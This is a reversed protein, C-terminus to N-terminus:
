KGHNVAASGYRAIVFEELSSYESMIQHRSSISHVLKAIRQQTEACPDVLTVKVANPNRSLGRRLLWEAQLDAPAFSFGVIVLERAEALTEEAKMWLPQFLEYDKHMTPPVLFQQRWEDELFLTADGWACSNSVSFLSVVLPHLTGQGRISRFWNLSGHLKLYTVESSVASSHALTSPCTTHRQDLHWIGDFKMPTYGIWENWKLQTNDVLAKDMILDYNFNIITDSSDLDSAITAHFQCADQYHRPVGGTGYLVDRIYDHLHDKHQDKEFVEDHYPQEADYREEDVRVMQEEIDVFSLLTEITILPPRAILAEETIGFRTCLQSFTKKHEDTRYKLFEKITPPKPNLKASASAGAGLWFVMPVGSSQSM